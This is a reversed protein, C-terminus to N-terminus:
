SLNHSVKVNLRFRKNFTRRVRFILTAFRCIISKTKLYLGLIKRLNNDHTTRKLMLSSSSLLSLLMQLLMYCCCYYYFCYEQCHYFYCKNGVGLFTIYLRKDRENLIRVRIVHLLFLSSPFTSFSFSLFLFYISHNHFTHYRINSKQPYNQVLQLILILTM